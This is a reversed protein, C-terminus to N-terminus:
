FLIFTPLLKSFKDDVEIQKSSQKLAEGGIELGGIKFNYFHIQILKLEKM